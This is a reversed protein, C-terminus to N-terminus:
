ILKGRLSEQAKQKGAMTRAKGTDKSMGGSSLSSGKRPVGHSNGNSSYMGRAKGIPAKM